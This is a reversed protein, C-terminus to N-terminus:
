RLKFYFLFTRTLLVKKQMIIYIKEFDMPLFHCIKLFVEVVRCSYILALLAM